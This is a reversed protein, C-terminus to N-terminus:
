MLWVCFRRQARCGPLRQFGCRGGGEVDGQVAASLMPPHIRMGRGSGQRGPDDGGSFATQGQPLGLV